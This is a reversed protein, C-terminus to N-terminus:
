SPKANDCWVITDATILVDEDSLEKLFPTAKSVALYDSIEPGKLNSPFHEDIPRLRIEFDLGLEDLFFKRRPSGSALILNKGTLNSSLM